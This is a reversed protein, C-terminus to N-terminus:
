ILIDIIMIIIKNRHLGFPLQVETGPDIKRLEHEAREGTDGAAQQQQRSGITGLVTSRGRGLKVRARGLSRGLTELGLKAKM